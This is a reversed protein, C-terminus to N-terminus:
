PSPGNDAVATPAATSEKRLRDTLEARAKAFNKELEGTADPFRAFPDAWGFDELLEVVGEEIAPDTERGTPHETIRHRYGRKVGFSRALERVTRRGEADVAMGDPDLCFVHAEMSMDSPADHVEAYRPDEVVLCVVRLDPRMGALARAFADCGGDTYRLQDALPLARGTM